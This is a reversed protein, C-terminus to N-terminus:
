RAEIMSNSEVIDVQALIRQFIGDSVLRNVTGTKIM